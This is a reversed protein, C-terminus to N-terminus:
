SHIQSSRSPVAGPESQILWKLLSKSAHAPQAAGYHVVFDLFESLIDYSWSCRGLSDKLYECGRNIARGLGILRFQFV